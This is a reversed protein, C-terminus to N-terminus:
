LKVTVEQHGKISIIWTLLTAYNPCEKYCIQCQKKMDHLFLCNKCIEKSKREIQSGEFATFANHTSMTRMNM